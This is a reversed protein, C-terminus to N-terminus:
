NISVTPQWLEIDIPDPLGFSLGFVKGGFTAPHWYAHCGAKQVEVPLFPFHHFQFPVIGHINVLGSFIIQLLNQHQQFFLSMGPGDIDGILPIDGLRGDANGHFLQPFVSIDFHAHIIHDGQRIFAVGDGSFHIVTMLRQRFIEELQTHRLLDRFSIGALDFVIKGFLGKGGYATLDDSIYFPCSFFIGTNVAVGRKNQQCSLYKNKDQVCFLNKMDYHRFSGKEAREEFYNGKSPRGGSEAPTKRNV